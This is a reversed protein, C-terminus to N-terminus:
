GVHGDDDAAVAKERQPVHPVAIEGPVQGVLDMDPHIGVLVLSRQRGLRITNVHAQELIEIRARFRLQVTEELCGVQRSFAM